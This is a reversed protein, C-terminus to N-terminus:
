VRHIVIDGYGTRARVEVTEEAQAPGDTANLLNRVDGYQSSVDLWAATGDPIGIDLAGASTELVVSGRVCEGIRVSGYATKAGVGSLARDVTIDGNASSLRLDGTVEGVSVAGNASKVTAAGDVRRIRIRGNATTVDTRGISQDMTIDGTSSNIRSEGLRGTCRVDGAADADIRSGAPLEITVDIAGTWGFVSWMVTKSARVTLEGDAFEVQVHEAARVDADRAPNAPRVDVVTDTRDTASIRLTGVTLSITALIPEPTAYVPM